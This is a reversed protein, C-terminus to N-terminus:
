CNISGLSKPINKLYPILKECAHTKGYRFSYERLMSLFLEFHWKYNESTKRTWITSPHNAHSVGYLIHEREDSLIWKKNKRGKDSLVITEKGDLMRHTTCLMIASELPMKVCHRDMLSQASEEVNESLYFINM